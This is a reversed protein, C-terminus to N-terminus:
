AGRQTSRQRPACRLAGRRRDAGKRRNDLRHAVIGLDTKQRVQERLIEGTSVQPIGHLEALIKGQTGKGSGPSGFLVLRM